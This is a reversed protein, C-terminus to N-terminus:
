GRQGQRGSPLHGHARQDVPHPPFLRRWSCAARQLCVDAPQAHREPLARGPRVTELMPWQLSTSVTVEEVQVGLADVHMSQPSQRPPGDVASGCFADGQEPFCEIKVPSLRQRPQGAGPGGPNTVCPSAFLKGEGGLPSARLDGEAIRYLHDGSQALQRELM